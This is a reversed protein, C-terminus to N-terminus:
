AGVWTTSAVPMMAVRGDVNGDGGADDVRGVVASMM